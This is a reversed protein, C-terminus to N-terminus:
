NSNYQYDITLNFHYNVDEREEMSIAFPAQLMAGVGSDFQSWVVIAWMNEQREYTYIFM